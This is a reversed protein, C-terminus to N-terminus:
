SNGKVSRGGDSEFFFTSTLLLLLLHSRKITSLYQWIKDSKNSKPGVRGGVGGGGWYQRLVTCMYVEMLTQQLIIDGDDLHTVLHCDLM